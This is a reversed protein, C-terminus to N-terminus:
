AAATRGGGQGRALRPLFPLLTSGIGTLFVAISLGSMGLLVEPLSGGYHAVQGDQFLSSVDTGPFLNLPYAQGGIIIVFMQALGGVLFLASAVTIAARSRGFMPPALILLPLVSGVLLQGVWFVSTYIGGELLLFREVGRHESGYLNKLHHAATFYLVALAFIVLLGRIKGLMEDTVLDQRLQLGAIALALVDFALGYLLSAAIFLPAM